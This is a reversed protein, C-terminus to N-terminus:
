NNDELYNHISEAVRIAGKADCLAYANQSFSILAKPNEYFHNLYKELQGEFYADMELTLSAGKLALYHAIERQNEALVVQITPVGLACREWASSGAAGIVLDARSLLEGMNNVNVHVNINLPLQSSLCQITKIHPASVGMIIDIEISNDKLCECHNLGNLIRATMNERDVGGMSILITKLQPHQRKLLSKERWILFEERLLAYNLGIFCHTNNPILAQYDTQKRGLNQDLLLQCDHMRDALDDIVFKIPCVAHLAREWNAEIGYHDIILVDVRRNLSLLFASTEQADEEWSVGLWTSQDLPHIFGSQITHKPLEFVDYDRERIVANLHGEHERCIFIIEYGLIRLRDALTLCRMVHGSGIHLAADVRFVILM